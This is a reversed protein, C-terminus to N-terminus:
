KSATLLCQKEREILVRMESLYCDRFTACNRKLIVVVAGQYVNIVAINRIQSNAPLLLEALRGPCRAGEPTGAAAWVPLLGKVSASKRKVYASFM